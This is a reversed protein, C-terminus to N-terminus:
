TATANACDLGAVALMNPMVLFVHDPLNHIAGM